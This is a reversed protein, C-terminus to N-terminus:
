ARRWAPRLVQISVVTAALLAAGLVSLFWRGVAWFLSGSLRRTWTV